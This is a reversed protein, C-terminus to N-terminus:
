RGSGGGPGTRGPGAQRNPPQEPTVFDATAGPLRDNIMIDPQLDRILEELETARWEEASREGLRWDM